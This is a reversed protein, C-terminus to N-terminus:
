SPSGTVIVLGQLQRPADNSQHSRSTDGCGLELWCLSLKHNVLAQTNGVIWNCYTLNPLTKTCPPLLSLLPKTAVSNTTRNETFWALGIKRVWLCLDPYQFPSRSLSAFRFIFLKAYRPTLKRQRKWKQSPRSVMLLLAPQRTFGTLSNM